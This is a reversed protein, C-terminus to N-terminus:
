SVGSWRQAPSSRVLHIFKAEPFLKRLGCIGLSYEPTGNVWRRKPDNEERAIKFAPDNGLSEPRANERRRAEFTSRHGVIYDSISAGLNQLLTEQSMGMSAMQSREGRQSGRDFAVAVDVAFSAM